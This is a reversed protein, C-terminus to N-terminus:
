RQFFPICKSNEMNNALSLGYRPIEDSFGFNLSSLRIQFQSAAKILHLM